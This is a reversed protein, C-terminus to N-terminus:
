RRWLRLRSLTEQSVKGSLAARLLGASVCFFESYSAQSAGMGWISAASAFRGYVEGRRLAFTALVRLLLLLLLTM